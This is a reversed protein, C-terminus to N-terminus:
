NAKWCRRTVACIARSNTKRVIRYQTIIRKQFYSAVVVLIPIVTLVVLALQWNLLLMFFAATIISMIAWVVDVAGWTVLDAIHGSDSTVRSMIWGVPTRDFYAFSLRQLHNFMSKRLDYQIREGLIGALYIFGFVCAAQTLAIVAYIALVRALAQPDNPTIGADIIQKKLYNFIGDQAAVITILAVFGFLWLKHPMALGLMRRLTKGSVQAQFDEEEFQYNDM